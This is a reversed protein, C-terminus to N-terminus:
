HWQVGLVGTGDAAFLLRGTVTCLAYLQSNALISSGAHEKCTMHLLSLENLLRGEFHVDDPMAMPFPMKYLIRM